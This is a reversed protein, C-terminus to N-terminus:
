VNFICPPVKTFLGDINLNSGKNNSM